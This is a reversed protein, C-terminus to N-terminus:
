APAAGAGQRALDKLVAHAAEEIRAMHHDEHALSVCFRRLPQAATAIGHDLLGRRFAADRALDGHVLDEYRRPAEAQFHLAVVSGFRTVVADLGSAAVARELAAALAEGKAYLAPYADPEAMREITALAAAVSRPHANFTGGLAVGHPPAAAFRELLDRRGVIASLPHGNGIAKGFTALDPTVGILSQYGGLAHRFGTIIEDFILLVGRRECLAKLAEAYGPEFPICGINHMLPEVLVAAVDHDAPDLAAEIAALDNFPLITTAAMAEPLAGATFPDAGGLREQPSVWNMAVYDHWGHYTGQFKIIRRRGTVARALRVAHLTAETGSTCYAVLEAAPILDILREALDLELRTTGLGVLDMGDSLGATRAVHWPDNRGLLIAGYGCNLDVYSQGDEAVLEAGAVRNFVLPRSLRRAASASGGPLLRGLAQFATKDATPAGGPKMSEGM